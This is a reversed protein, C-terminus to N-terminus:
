FSRRQRHIRSVLGTPERKAVTAASSSKRRCKKPTSAPDSSGTSSPTSIVKISTPLDKQSTAPISLSTGTSTATTQPLYTSLVTSSSPASSPVSAGPVLESANACFAILLDVDNTECQRQAYWDEPAYFAVACNPSNCDAGFGDCGNYYAFSAEVNFRHPDILSIDVSSGCGPCTPNVLNMELLTCGEGNTDCQGTQLYAIGSFMSDVVYDQGTSVNRGNEVLCPTGYGCQNIFKITHTEAGVGIVSFIGLFFSFFLSFAMSGPM